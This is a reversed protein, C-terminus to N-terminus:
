PVSHELAIEEPGFEDTSKEIMLRGTPEEPMFEDIDTATFCGQWQLLHYDWVETVPKGDLDVIVSVDHLSSYPLVAIGSEWEGDKVRCFRAVTASLSKAERPTTM